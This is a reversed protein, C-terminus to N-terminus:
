LDSLTAIAQHCIDVVSTPLHNEMHMEMHHTATVQAPRWLPGHITWEDTRRRQQRVFTRSTFPHIDCSRRQPHASQGRPIMLIMVSSFVPIVDASCCNRTSFSEM